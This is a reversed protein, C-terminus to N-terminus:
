STEKFNNLNRVVYKERKMKAHVFHPHNRLQKQTGKSKGTQSEPSPDVLDGGPRTDSLSRLIHCFQVSIEVKKIKQKDVFNWPITLSLLSPPRKNM